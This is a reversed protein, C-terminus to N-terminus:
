PFYCSYFTSSLRSIYSVMRHVASERTRNCPDLCASEAAWCVRRLDLEFPLWMLASELTCSFAVSNEWQISLSLTDPYSTISPMKGMKHDSTQSTFATIPDKRFIYCGRGWYGVICERRKIIDKSGQCTSKIRCRELARWHSSGSASCACAGHLLHAEEAQVAHAHGM